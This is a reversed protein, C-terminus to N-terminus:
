ACSKEFWRDCSCCSSSNEPEINVFNVFIISWTSNRENTSVLCRKNAYMKKSKTCLRDGGPYSTGNDAQLTVWCCTDWGFSFPQSPKEILNNGDGYCYEHSESVFVVTYHLQEDLDCEIGSDDSCQARQGFDSQNQEIVDDQQCGGLYKDNFRRWTQTNRVSLQNGSNTQEIKYTGGRYHSADVVLSTTIAFIALKM